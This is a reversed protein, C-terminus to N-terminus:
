HALFSEGFIVKCSNLVCILKDRPAKYQNIKALERRAFDLFGQTQKQRHVEKSTAVTDQHAATKMDITPSSDDSSVLAM